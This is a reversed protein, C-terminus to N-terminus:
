SSSKNYTLVDSFECTYLPEFGLWESVSLVDNVIEVCIEWVECFDVWTNKNHLEYLHMEKMNAYRHDSKGVYRNLM